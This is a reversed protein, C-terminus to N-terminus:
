SVPRIINDDAPGVLSIPSTIGGERWACPAGWVFYYFYCFILLACVLPACCCAHMCGGSCVFSLCPSVCCCACMCGWSDAAFACPSISTRMARLRVASASARASSFVVVGIM